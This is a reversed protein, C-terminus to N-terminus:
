PSPDGGSGGPWLPPVHSSCKHLSGMWPWAPVDLLKTRFCHSLAWADKIGNRSIGDAWNQGSPVFEFWVAFQLLYACLHWVQITRAIYENGSGGKVYAQLASTNDVIVIVDKGRLAQQEELLMVLVAAAECIAIPNGGERLREKPYGVLDLFRQTFEFFGGTKITADKDYLLYGGSPQRDAQADTAAIVPRRTPPSTPALRHPHIDLLVLFFELADVTDADM